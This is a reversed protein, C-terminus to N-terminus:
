KHAELQLNFVYVGRGTRQCHGCLCVKRGSTHQIGTGAMPNVDFCNQLLFFWSAAAQEDSLFGEKLLFVPPPKKIQHM